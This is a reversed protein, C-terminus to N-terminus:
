LFSKLSNITQFKEQNSSQKVIAPNLARQFLARHCLKVTTKKRKCTFTCRVSGGADRRSTANKNSGQVQFQNYSPPPMLYGAPDHSAVPNLHSQHTRFLRTEFVINSVLSSDFYILFNFISREETSSEALLSHVFSLTM